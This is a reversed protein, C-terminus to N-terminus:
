LLWKRNQPIIGTYVCTVSTYGQRLEKTRYGIERKDKSALLLVGGVLKSAIPGLADSDELEPDGILVWHDPYRARIDKFSMTESEVQM